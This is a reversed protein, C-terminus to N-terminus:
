KMGGSNQNQKYILMYIIMVDISKQTDQKKNVANEPM